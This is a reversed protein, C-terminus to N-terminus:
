NARWCLRAGANLRVPRILKSVIPSLLSPAKIGSVALGKLQIDSVSGANDLLGDNNLMHYALEYLADLIRKPVVSASLDVMGGTRPDFYTGIRPFALPQSVSVVVGSWAMIDFVGTASVLSQLKMEESAAVWAAADLRTIFYAEAEALDAYSNIGKVLAM